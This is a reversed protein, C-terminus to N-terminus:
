GEASSWNTFEVAGALQVLYLNSLLLFFSDFVRDKEKEWKKKRGKNEYLSPLPPTSQMGKLEFM